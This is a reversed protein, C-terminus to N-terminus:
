LKWESKLLESFQEDTEIGGSINSYFGMFEDLKIVYNPDSTGWNKMYELYADEMKVKGEVVLPHKSVDYNKAVADLTVIGNCKSAIKKYASEILM